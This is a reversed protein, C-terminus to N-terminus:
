AANDFLGQQFGTSEEFKRVTNINLEDLCVFLQLEFGRNSFQFAKGKKLFYERTSYLKKGNYIIVINKFRITEDILLPYSIGLSNTKRFLHKESRTIILTGEGVADLKAIYRTQHELNLQVTFLHSYKTAILAIQQNSKSQLM